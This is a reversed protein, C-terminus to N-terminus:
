KLAALYIPAGNTEDKTILYKADWTASAPCFAGGTRTLPVESATITNGSVILLQPENTLEYKCTIGLPCGSLKAGAKEAGDKTVFADLALTQVLLWSPREGTVTTCIGSCESFQLAELLIKLGTHDGEDEITAGLGLVTSHCEEEVGKSSNLLLAPNGAETLGKVNGTWISNCKANHKGSETCLVDASATSAGVFAMAALAAIAALGLM